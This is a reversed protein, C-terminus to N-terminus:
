CSQDQARPFPESTSCAHHDLNENRRQLPKVASRSWPLASIFVVLKLEALSWSQLTAWADTGETWSWVISCLFLVAGLVLLSHPWPAQAWWHFTLWDCWKDWWPKLVTKHHLWLWTSNFALLYMLVYWARTEWFCESAEGRPWFKGLYQWFRIEFCSRLESLHMLARFWWLGTHCDVGNWCRVCVCLYDWISSRYDERDVSWWLLTNIGQFLCFIRFGSRVCSSGVPQPLFSYALWHGSGLILTETLHQCTWSLASNLCLGGALVRWKEWWSLIM